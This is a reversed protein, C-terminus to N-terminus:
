HTLPELRMGELAPGEPTPPGADVQALFALVDRNATESVEALYNHGAGAYTVLRSDPLVEALEQGWPFPVVPDETGHLVLAPLDLRSVAPVEAAYARLADQQAVLAEPLATDELIARDNRARAEVSCASGYTTSAVLQERTALRLADNVEIPARPKDRSLICSCGLVLSRVRDPAAMAVELAVVGGLSMGYVHASREDAADLVALADSAMDSISAGRGSTSAGTGQNDFSLVRHHEALAPLAPYWMASSYVAGMILLLPTGSGRDEWHLAYGDRAVTSVAGVTQGGVM